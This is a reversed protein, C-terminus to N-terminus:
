KNLKWPPVKRSCRECDPYPDLHEERIQIIDRWHMRNFHNSLGRITEIIGSDRIIEDVVVLSLIGTMCDRFNHIYIM